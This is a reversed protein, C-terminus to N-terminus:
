VGAKQKTLGSYLACAIFIVTGTLVITPGTPLDLYYSLVIGTLVTVLALFVNTVVLMKFSKSFLKATTVPIILLASVLIIGLVKIGLVVSMALGVYLAPQLLNTKVGQLYAMESDLSFLILSKFFTLSVVIIVAGGIVTLWMEGPTISLINGFLFSVLEPQYGSKLSLLIVGLALGSTFLMGIAADSTIQYRKELIYILIAFLASALLAAILPNMALLIGAAVGALSAHAIGDSFFAMRRLVVFTGLLALLVALVIGALLARQMFPFQLIELM